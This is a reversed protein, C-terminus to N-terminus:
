QIHFLNEIGLLRNCTFGEGYKAGIPKGLERARAVMSEMFDPTSIYSIPESSNPDYFQSSFAKLVTLKQEMFDSINVVFDPKIYRDQIYHFVSSPRWPEQPGSDWYTEIKRLGSYFCAESILKSARGHDPHRDYIANGLVIKPQFRRLYNILKLQSIADNVFFGDALELNARVEIGLLKSAKKSEEERIVASGRTGLEGRTLDLIGVSYGLSIQKLITGGCCLEADDPHAAIVLIDLKSPM